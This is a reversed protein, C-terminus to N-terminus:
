AALKVPNLAAAREAKHAADVLHCAAFVNFYRRGAEPNEANPRVMRAAMTKLETAEAVSMVSTLSLRGTRLIEFNPHPM